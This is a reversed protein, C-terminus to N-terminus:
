FEQQKFAPKPFIIKVPQRYVAHSLLLEGKSLRTVNSKIDTDLFRYDPQFVEASGSRGIIKTACNGTVRQHVASMFQQASILNVGLSRGREAIELVLETLPSPRPGSPAYKNLEDVFFIVKEPIPETRDEPPDAKLSYVSKLLDGFVLMQEHEQLRAIDIVYIHGGKIKLIEDSLSKEHASLADVFIGSQGVQVMRRMHRRFVGISSGRIGRWEKVASRTTPDFLPKGSLLNTWSHVDRFDPENNRIGEKIESIISELTFYTDPIQAFLLDLKDATSELDYAYIKYFDPELFCNPRRGIRGKPLYYHVKDSEFPKPELGLTEWMEMEEVSFDQERRQDIQLLDGHKVNLIVVALNKKEEESAKQLISQILFIAYSTKTALGSIGSINVHASEPGLVYRRDIYAVAAVGNSMKILGAPIRNQPEMTDIGLAAQIGEDDAFRVVKESSVPMYIDKDNSLVNVHAVYTGQRPTNPDETLEGFNSSIFNALHTPSDTRHDLITVLGYTRSTGEHSVQEVEVIDFPNVIVKPALWFFFKESTNSDRDTASTKGIEQIPSTENM